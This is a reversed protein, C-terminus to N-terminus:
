LDASHFEVLSDIPSKIVRGIRVGTREAARALNESFCAGVSGVANMPYKAVDYRLVNRRIFSEFQSDVMECIYPDSLFEEIFPSFSALWRNPMPRKYVNDIIKFYDLGFRSRLEASVREPLLNRIFDSILRKGLSAGGGEDGLIFGGGVNNDTIKEGDYFCSNSGTGMICAIGASHGCLARAAGLKDTEVFFSCNPFNRGFAALLAATAEHSAAVGASYFYIKSVDSVHPKVNEALIGDLMEPSQFVPNIGETRLIKPEGSEGLARWDTKTTGSDAILIM